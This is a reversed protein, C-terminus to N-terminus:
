GHAVEEIRYLSAKDKPALTMKSLKVAKVANGAFWSPNLKISKKSNNYVEFSEGKYIDAQWIERKILRLGNNLHGADLRVYRVKAGPMKIGQEMYKMMELAEKKFPADKKAIAVSEPKKIAQLHYEKFAITKGLSEVSNVTLSLHQGKQTSLFLTFPASIEPHVYMSGDTEDYQYTLAGDPFAAKIIKDNSVMLRNQNTNSLEVTIEANNKFTKVTEAPLQQTLMVLIAISLTRYKNM